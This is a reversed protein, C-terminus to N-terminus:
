LRFVNSITEGEKKSASADIHGNDKECKSSKASKKASKKDDGTSQNEQNNDEAVNAEDGENVSAKQEQSTNCGM